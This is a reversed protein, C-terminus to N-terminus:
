KEMAKKNGEANLLSPVPQFSILSGPQIIVLLASPKIKRRGKFMGKILISWKVPVLGLIRLWINIAMVENLVLIDYFVESEIPLSFLSKAIKSVETASIVYDNVNYKLLVM